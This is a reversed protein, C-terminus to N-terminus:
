GVNDEDSKGKLNALPQPYVHRVRSLHSNLSDFHLVSFLTNLKLNDNTYISVYAVLLHVSEVNLCQPGCIHDYLHVDGCTV